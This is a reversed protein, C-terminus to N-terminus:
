DSLAWVHVKQRCCAERTDRNLPIAIDRIESLVGVDDRHMPRCCVGCSEPVECHHCCFHCHKCYHCSGCITVTFSRGDLTCVHHVCM